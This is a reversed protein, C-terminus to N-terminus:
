IERLNFRTMLSVILFIILGTMPATATAAIPVKAAEVTETAMSIVSFETVESCCVLTSAFAKRRYNTATRFLYPFPM